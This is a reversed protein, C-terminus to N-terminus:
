RIAWRSARPRRPSPVATSPTARVSRWVTSDGMMERYNALGVFHPVGTLNWDFFSIVVVGAIPALLFVLFGALSPALLVYAEVITRIRSRRRRRAGGDSPSPAAHPSGRDAAPRSVALPSNAIM